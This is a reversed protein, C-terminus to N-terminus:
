MDHKVNNIVIDLHVHEKKGIQISSSSNEKAVVMVMVMVMVIVMMMVMVVVIVMMMVMVMVIMMIMLSSFLWLYWCRISSISNAKARCLLTSSKLWLRMSNSRMSLDTSM